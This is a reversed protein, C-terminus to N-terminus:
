DDFLSCGTMCDPYPGGCAACGEPIEERGWTLDGDGVNIEPADYVTGYYEFDVGYGCNKNSCILVLRDESFNMKAGCVSCFYEEPKIKRRM